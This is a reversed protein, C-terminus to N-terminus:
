PQFIGWSSFICGVNEPRPAHAPCLSVQRLVQGPNAPLNCLEASLIKKNFIQTTKHTQM